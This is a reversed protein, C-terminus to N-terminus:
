GACGIAPLPWYLRRSGHQRQKEIAFGQSFRHAQRAEARGFVLM